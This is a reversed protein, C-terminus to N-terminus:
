TGQGQEEQQRLLEERLESSIFGPLRQGQLPPPPKWFARYPTFPNPATPPARDIEGPYRLAIRKGSRRDIQVFRGSEIVVAAGENPGTDSALMARVKGNTMATVVFLGGVSDVKMSAFAAAVAEMFWGVALSPDDSFMLPAYTRLSGLMDEAGSGIAAYSLPGVDRPVFDPSKLAYLLGFSSAPVEVIGTPNNIENMIRLCLYNNHGLRSTVSLLRLVERM